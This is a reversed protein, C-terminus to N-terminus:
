PQPAVVLKNAYILPLLIRNRKRDVSFDAVHSNFDFVPAALGDRGVRYLGKDHSVLVDGNLAVGIGDFFGLRPLTRIRTQQGDPTLEYFIGGTSSVVLAHGNPLARIGNPHRLQPSSILPSIKLDRGIRHVGDEGTPLWLHGDWQRWAGVSGRNLREEESGLLAWKWGSQTGLVDGDPLVALSNSGGGPAHVAVGLPKGTDLDFLRVVGRGDARRDAVYLVRGSVALGAPHNVGQGEEAAGDIWRLDLLRGEPSIRSIFGHGAPGPVSGNINSVLYVDNQPDHVVSEPKIFGVNEIVFDIAAAAHSCAAALLWLLGILKKM